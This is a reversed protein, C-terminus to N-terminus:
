AQGEGQAIRAETQARYSFRRATPNAVPSAASVLVALTPLQGLWVGLVVVGIAALVTPIDAGARDGAAVGLAGFLLTLRILSWRHRPTDDASGFCHCPLPVPRLANFALAPLFAWLLIFVVLWGLATWRGSLMTVAAVIEAGVVMATPVVALSAPVHVFNSLSRNFAGVDRVKGLVSLAFVLGLVIRAVTAVEGTM